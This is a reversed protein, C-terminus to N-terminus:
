GEVVLRGQEAGLSTAVQTGPQRNGARVILVPKSKARALAVMEGTGGRGQAPQGDWVAILAECRDVVYKGAAEYAADRNAAPPLAVTEEATALLRQFEEGSAASFDRLYEDVPLPLPVILRGGRRLLVRRAALRDAGEALSTILLLPRGPYGAELCRLAEEIGAEIKEIEALVRHGTVGVLLPAAEGSSVTM